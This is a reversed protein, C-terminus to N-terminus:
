GWGVRWGGVLINKRVDTASERQLRKLWKLRELPVRQPWALARSVGCVHSVGPGNRAYLPRLTTPDKDRKWGRLVINPRPVHKARFGSRRICGSPFVRSAWYVQRVSSVCLSYPTYVSELCKLCERARQIDITAATLDSGKGEPVGRLMIPTELHPPSERQPM